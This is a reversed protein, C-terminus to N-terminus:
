TESGTAGSESTSGLTRNTMSWPQNELGSPYLVVNAPNSSYPEALVSVYDPVFLYSKHRESIEAYLRICVNTGKGSLYPMKVDFLGLLSCVTDEIPTITRGAARSMKRAISCANRQDPDTSISELITDIRSLPGSLM